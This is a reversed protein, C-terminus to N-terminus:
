LILMADGYSYFRYRQAIAADYASKVRERGAFASVLMLLSSQPLHFNTLLGGVILFEAGPYIFLDTDGTGAVITGDHTRAVAELTRTTTTGVAIVRRGDARARNIAAAAAAGIDYREAELVHDEVRDVRIPQFTGYGVHLTLEAIEVGRAALAATLVPTFHLGATPAAISGRAHAFVTQYRDRDDARDDRKIYPPLPMHGIADVAEDLPSGDATWLRVIRRGFHRRELIEGHITHIGEFILRAGPKLKQGPHVLAEWLEPTQGPDSGPDQLNNIKNIINKAPDSGPRVRAVLLCEVAGGSADRRGLLRAPFVRTNNVVVLDGARLLNALASVQTHAISGTDRDLHLLRAGGRVAPPEQAILEPPLDFDFDRVDM